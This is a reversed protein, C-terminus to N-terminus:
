HKKSIQSITPCSNGEDHTKPYTREVITALIMMSGPWYPQSRLKVHIVDRHYVLGFAWADMSGCWPCYRPRPEPRERARTPM